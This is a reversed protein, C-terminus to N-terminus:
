RKTVTNGEIGVSLLVGTFPFVARKHCRWKRTIKGEPFADEVVVTDEDDHAVAKGEGDVKTESTGIIPSAANTKVGDIAKSAANVEGSVATPENGNVGIASEEAVPLTATPPCTEPDVDPSSPSATSTSSLTTVLWEFRRGSLPVRCFVYVM